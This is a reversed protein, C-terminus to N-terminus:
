NTQSKHTWRGLMFLATWKNKNVLRVLADCLILVIIAYVLQAVVAGPFNFRFAIHELGFELLYIQICYIGLTNRGTESCLQLLKGGKIRELLIKFLAIFFISGAAGVGLRILTIIFNQMDFRVADKFFIIRYAADYDGKWFILFFIFFILSGILPVLPRRFLRDNYKHLFYGLWLFPLLRFITTRTLIILLITPLSAALIDNRFIKKSAYAIVACIFLYKLFWMWGGSLYAFFNISDKDTFRTYIINHFLIFLISFTLTPLLLQISRRKLFYLPSMAFAKEMFYGSVVMFLPMHFSYIFQFLWSDHYPDGPFTQQIVHDLIVCFIAFCKTIDLFTIRKNDSQM